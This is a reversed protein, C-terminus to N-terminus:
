KRVAAFKQVLLLRQCSSPQHVKGSGVPQAESSSELREGSLCLTVIVVVAVSIALLMLLLDKNIVFIKCIFPGITQM